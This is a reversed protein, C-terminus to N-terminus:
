PEFGEFIPLWGEAVATDFDAQSRITWSVGQLDWVKRCLGTTISDKRDAFKYAVFDPCSAFNLLNHTLAFRIAPHLKKDHAWFNETLQGRIIQPRNKRLWQICRPDFSEICYIGQYDKLIECAAAALAAHNNDVPKLEVIMPAKGEYIAMVERFLPIKEDTGELRYNELDELTLDEIRVDVGATRLLSSDHIVALNGDKMLHIDLEIGYGNELAARFAAMSNEPLNEDHLGRHAYAWGKLDALGSHGTRGQTSLLYLGALVVACVILIKILIM